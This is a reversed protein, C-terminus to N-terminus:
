VKFASADINYNSLKSNLTSVKMGLLQAAKTQVGGCRELAAFLLSKEYRQVEQHLNISSEIPEAASAGLPVLSADLMPPGSRRVMAEVVRKLEGVNGPWAHARLTALAGPSLVRPEKGLRHCLQITFHEALAAVDEARDRLSPIRLAEAGTPRCAGFVVRVHCGHLSHRRTHELHPHAIFRAIRGHIEHSLPSVDAIYITGGRAQEAYDRQLARTAPPLAGPAEFLIAQLVAEHLSDAPVVVFPRSARTSCEHVFRAVFEKGAGPGGEVVFPRAHAAYAAVTAPAERAWRSEGPVRAKIYDETEQEGGRRAFRTNGSAALDDLAITAENRM